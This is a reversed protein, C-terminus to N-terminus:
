FRRSYTHVSSETYSDAMLKYIAEDTMTAKEEM